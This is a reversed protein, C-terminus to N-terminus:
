KPMAAMDMYLVNWRHGDLDAFGCGYMWGQVESPKGFLTGGAAVAKKALEDVEAKSEADISILVENGQKTDTLGNGTFNKFASEAFLMVVINKTGITLGASHETNGYKTNFAFGLQTFFEKSKKVDKVPLNIWLEKVM